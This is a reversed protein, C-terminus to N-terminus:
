RGLLCVGSWPRGGMQAPNEPLLALKEMDALVRKLAAAAKLISDVTEPQWGHRTFFQPGDEM